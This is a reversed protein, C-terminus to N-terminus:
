IIILHFFVFNHAHLKDFYFTKKLMFFSIFTMNFFNFNM